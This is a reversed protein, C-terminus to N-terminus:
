IYKDVLLIGQILLELGNYINKICMAENAQHAKGKQVGFPPNDNKRGIGFGVANPIKRAYTGGSLVYSNENEKFYQNSLDKLGKLLPLEPDTYSPEEFDLRETQMGMESLKRLLKDKCSVASYSVPIRLNMNMMAKGNTYNMIGLVHTLNGSEKDSYELNLSKGYYDSTLLNLDKMLQEEEHNLISSSLLYSTLISIANISNEPFASHGSVGIATVIIKEEKKEVQIGSFTESLLKLPMLECDELVAIALPPVMNSVEGSNISTVVGKKIVRSFDVKIIGKEGCCLPFLVDPVISFAPASVRSLYYDLDQMGSEESCGFFLRLNHKLRINQEKFYRAAYLAAIVSSKNDRAGRAILYGNKIKPVFPNYDWSTGEPVVDLHTFIGIDKDLDGKLIASICHYEHNVSQIGERELLQCMFDAAEACGEGYPYSSKDELSISKIKLLDIIDMLISEKNGDVWQKIKEISHSDLM